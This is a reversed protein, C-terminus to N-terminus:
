ALGLAVAMAQVLRECDQRSSGEGLSIRLAGHARNAAIGLSTLAHSPKLSGSASSCAAGGSVAIGAEDLRLVLTQSEIGSILLHLFGPLHGSSDGPKINVTASVRSSLETLNELLYDRLAALRQAEQRLYQPSLRQAAAAFGVAGAVDQTGSRRKGEQGGGLQRPVFPTGQRLYFLGCGKPGGIKHASFSAADVQWDRLATPLKGLGQVADTYLYAGRERTAAALETLPQVTGLENQAWMVAVLLTKPRLAAALDDPHV